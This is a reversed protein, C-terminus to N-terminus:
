CVALGLILCSADQDSQVYLCVCLEQLVEFVVTEKNYRAFSGPWDQQLLITHYPAYILFDRRLFSTVCSDM